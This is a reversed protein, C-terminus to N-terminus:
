FLKWDIAVSITTHHKLTRASSWRRAKVAEYESNVLQPDADTCILNFTCRLGKSAFWTEDGAALHHIASRGYQDISGTHAGYDIILKVMDINCSRAAHHFAVIGEKEQGKVDDGLDLTKRSIDINGSMRAYHLCTRAEDDEPPTDAGHAIFLGIIRTQAERDILSKIKYGCALM